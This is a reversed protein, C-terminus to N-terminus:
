QIIPSMVRRSATFHHGFRTLGEERMAQAYLDFYQILTQKSELKYRVIFDHSKLIDGCDTEAYLKASIFGPLQLMKDIHESLWGLFEDKFHSEIKLSVEYIISM